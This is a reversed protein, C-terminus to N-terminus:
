EAVGFTFELCDCALVFESADHWKTFFSEESCDLCYGPKETDLWENMAQIDADEMGSEDANILACAWFAPLTYTQTKM